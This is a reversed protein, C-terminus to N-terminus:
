GGNEDVDWFVLQQLKSRIRSKAKVNSICAIQKAIEESQKSKNEFVRQNRKSWIMYVMETYVM